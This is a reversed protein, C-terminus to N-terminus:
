KVLSNKFAANIRKWGRTVHEKSSRAFAHVNGDERTYHFTALDIASSAYAAQVRTCHKAHDDVFIIAKFNAGSNATRALLTRLMYGKHQGATMFIGGSYSVPQLRAEIKAIIAANLGHKNPHKKDFPLFRGRQESIKLAHKAFVYHNLKLERESPSRFNPGRSTLVITTTGLAQVTKIMQPIGPEPPHMGSIAFLLGQAALLEDFDRAVLAPSKPHNNLLDNQWNFWQDSGLDQNMALLTNDLDVVFLVDQAGHKKALSQFEQLVNKFDATAVHKRLPATPKATAGQALAPAQCLALLLAGPLLLPSSIARM